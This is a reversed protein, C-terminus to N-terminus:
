AKTNSADKEQKITNFMFIGFMVNSILWLLSFLHENDYVNFDTVKFTEVLLLKIRIFSSFIFYAGFMFYM